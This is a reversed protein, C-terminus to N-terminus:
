YSYGVNGDYSLSGHHCGLERVITQMTSDQSGSILLNAERPHFCLKNVARTHIDKFVCDVIAGTARIYASLPLVTKGIKNKAAKSNLDWLVISGTNPASAILNDILLNTFIYLNEPIINERIEPYCNAFIVGEFITAAFVKRLTGSYMKVAM